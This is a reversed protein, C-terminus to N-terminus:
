RELVLTVPGANVLAVDMMAGFEGSRVRGPACGRLIELFRQYLPIAVPPPAADIFSPRRGKRADGYLTFQSVVLLDGGVDQLSLNMKDEQDPFIRLGVLKDAMWLLKEQDDGATFGVLVVLGRDIEGVVSGGITVSARAVRQVVVRM